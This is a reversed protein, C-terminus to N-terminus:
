YASLVRRYHGNRTGAQSPDDLIHGPTPDITYLDVDGATAPLPDSAASENDAAAPRAGHKTAQPVASGASDTGATADVGAAAVTMDSVSAAQLVQGHADHAAALLLCIALLWPM